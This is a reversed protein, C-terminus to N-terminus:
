FAWWINDSNNWDDAKKLLAKGEEGKGNAFPDDDLSSYYKYYPLYYGDVKRMYTTSKVTETGISYRYFILFVDKQVEVEEVVEINKLIEDKHKRVYYSKAGYEYPNDLSLKYLEKLAAISTMKNEAFPASSKSNQSCSVLYITIIFLPIQKM